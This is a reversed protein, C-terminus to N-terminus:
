RQHRIATFQRTQNTVRDIRVDHTRSLCAIVEDDHISHLEGIVVLAKDLVGMPMGQLVDWEAGETDIKIADPEPIQHSILLDALPAIPLLHAPTSKSFQTAYFAGGGFNTGDLSQYFPFMGREKGLGVPIVTIRNRFAATNRELLAVNEPLPEFAWIRAEPYTLAFYVSALGINAGIDLITRPKSEDPLRYESQQRLIQNVMWLDKTRSRIAIRASRGNLRVNLPTIPADAERGMLRLITPLDGSRGAADRLHWLRRRMDAFMQYSYM